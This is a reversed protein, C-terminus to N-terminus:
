IATFISHYTYQPTMFGILKWAFVAVFCFEVLWCGYRDLALTNGCANIRLKQSQGNKLILPFSIALFPLFYMDIRGLQQVSGQLAELVMAFISLKVYVANKNEVVNGCLMFFVMICLSLLVAFVANTGGNYLYALYNATDLGVADLVTELLAFLKGPVLLFFVTGGFIIWKAHASFHRKGFLFVVPLLVIASKHFLYALLCFPIFYVGRHKNAVYVGVIVIAIAISQRIASMDVMLIYPHVAMILLALGRQEYTLVKSVILYFAFVYVASTLIVIVTFNPSIKNLWAYLPEVDDVDVGSQLSNYIRRYAGEDGYNYRFAMFLFVIIYPTYRLYLNTRYKRTAIFLLLLFAAVEVNLMM